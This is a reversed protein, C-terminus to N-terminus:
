MFGKKQNEKESNSVTEVEGSDEILKEDDGNVENFRPARKELFEIASIHM